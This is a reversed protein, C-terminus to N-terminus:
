KLINKLDDPVNELQNPTLRRKVSSAMFRDYEKTPFYCYVSRGHKYESNDILLRDLIKMKYAKAVIKHIKNRTWDPNNIGNYLESVTVPRREEKVKYYLLHLLTVFDTIIDDVQEIYKM